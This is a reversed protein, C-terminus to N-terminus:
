LGFKGTDIYDKKILCWFDTALGELIYQYPLYGYGNDGWEEGWSNKIILAGKTKENSIPNIIELNNDYGVAAVAHGGNQRETSSPYAIKGSNNTYNSFLSATYCSFGFMSPIGAKLHKKIEYLLEEPTVDNTDLRYYTIAKYSQGLGYIYANPEDNFKEEEYPYYNEPPAGFLALAGMTSRLFAGDDGEFGILNRTTKYIFLKSCDIHNGFAKREYYEIISAAAHATCSGLNGQNEVDSCFEKLDIKSPLKLATKKNGSLGVKNLMESVKDTKGVLKVKDSVQTTKKSFDNRDPYDKIWGLNHKTKTKM